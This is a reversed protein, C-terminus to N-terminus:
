VGEVPEEVREKTKQFYNGHYCDLKQSHMHILDCYLNCHSRGTMPYQWFPQCGLRYIIKLGVLHLEIDQSCQQYESQLEIVTSLIEM